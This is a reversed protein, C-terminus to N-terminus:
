KYSTEIQTGDELEVTATRKFVNVSIVKGKGEKIHVHEGERPLYGVVLHPVDLLVEGVPLHRKGALLRPLLGGDTSGPRAPLFSSM